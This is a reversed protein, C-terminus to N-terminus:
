TKWVFGSTTDGTKEITPNGTGPWPQFTIYNGVTGSKSLCVVAIFAYCNASTSVTTYTIGGKVNVTDGAVMTDAAKQITQWPTSESGDNTDLGTDGAVYYTAAHVSSNIAFLFLIAFILSCLLKRL